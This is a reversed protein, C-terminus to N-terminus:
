QVDEPPKGRRLQELSAGLAEFGIPGPSSDVPARLWAANRMLAVEDSSLVLASSVKTTMVTQAGDKGEPCHRSGSLTRFSKTAEAISHPAPSSQQYLILVGVLSRYIISTAHLNAIDERTLM